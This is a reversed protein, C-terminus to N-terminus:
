HRKLRKSWTLTIARISGVDIRSTLAQRTYAPAGLILTIADILQNRTAKAKRMGILGGLLFSRGGSSSM